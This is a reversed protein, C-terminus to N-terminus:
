AQAPGRAQEPDAITRGARVRIAVREDLRQLVYGAGSAEYCSRIQGTDPLREFFRKLRRMDFPVHELLLPQQRRGQFVAIMVFDKHVDMDVYLISANM